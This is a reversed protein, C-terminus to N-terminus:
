NIFAVLSLDFDLHPLNKEFFKMKLIQSTKELFFVPINHCKKM